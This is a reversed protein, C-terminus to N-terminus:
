RQQLHRLHAVIAWRDAAPIQHAHSPMNRVGQSIVDFFYGDGEQLLREEWLVPPPIFGRQIVTGQGEGQLGHCHKCFVAFRDAGRALLAPTVPLPAHALPEGAADVGQYFATDEHQDGASVSGAVPLRMAAQDAFFASAAQTKYKPQHDMDHVAHLPPKSSEAGRHCGSAVLLIIVAVICPIRTM